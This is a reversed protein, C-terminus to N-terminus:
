IREGKIGMSRLHRGKSPASMLALYARESVGQYEYLGSNFKVHMTETEADYGISEINSSEVSQMEM